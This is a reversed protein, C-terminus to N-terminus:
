PQVDQVARPGARRAASLALLIAPAVILAGQLFPADISIAAFTLGACFPGVFRAFAGAANNLGLIQGQRHPDATRSILAGVNPWAVSQGVATLCMLATTSALGSSLPQLTCGLVTMGMGIALMRGEGFRESLPGTILLTVGLGITALSLSWSSRAPTLHFTAALEPLVAQTSYLLAFTAVGAAFLALVVRRYGPEGARYGTVRAVNRGQSEHTWHMAAMNEIRIAYPGQHHLDLFQPRQQRETLMAV